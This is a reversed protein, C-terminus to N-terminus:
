DIENPQMQRSSVSRCRQERGPLETRRIIHLKNYVYTSVVSTHLSGTGLLVDISGETLMDADQYSISLTADEQHLRALVSALGGSKDDLDDADRLQLTVSGEAGGSSYMFVAHPSPSAYTTQLPLRVGPVEHIGVSGSTRTIIGPAKLDDTFCHTQFPTLEVDHLSILISSYFLLLRPREVEGGLGIHRDNGRDGYYRGATSGTGHGDNGYHRSYILGEPFRCGKTITVDNNGVNTDVHDLASSEFYVLSGVVPLDLNSDRDPIYQPHNKWFQKGSDKWAFAPVSLRKHEVDLHFNHGRDVVRRGGRPTTKNAFNIVSRAAFTLRCSSSCPLPPPFSLYYPPQTRCYALCFRTVPVCLVCPCGLLSGLGSALGCFWLRSLLGLRSQFGSRGTM